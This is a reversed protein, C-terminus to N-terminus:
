RRRPRVSSSTGSRIRAGRQASSCPIGYNTTFTSCSTRTRGLTICCRRPCPDSGGIPWRIDSILWLTAIISFCSRWRTNRSAQARLSLDDAKKRTGNVVCRNASECLVKTAHYTDFLGVVYIDFDQQLWLIDSEAGHFVKVVAPDVLVGGLKDERVLDRLSLLDVVFDEERTSIQMLCLFGTFSRTAHYELDVAIENSGRLKEVMAQYAPETDVYTFPTSAFPQVPVAPKNVFLSSPYPLHKTEHYYPHRTFDPKVVPDRSTTGENSATPSTEGFFPTGARSSAPTPVYDLPVM